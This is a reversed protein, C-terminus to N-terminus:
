QLSMQSCRCANPGGEASTLVLGADEIRGLPRLTADSGPRPLTASTAANSGVTTYGRWASTWEYSQKSAQQPCYPLRSLTATKTPGCSAM